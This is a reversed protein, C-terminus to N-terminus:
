SARVAIVEPGGGPRPVAPPRSSAALTPRPPWPTCPPCTTAGRRSRPRGAPGCRACCRSGGRATSSRWRGCLDVEDGPACLLGDVGDTITDPFNGVRTAVVPLGHEHALAVLQSATASRYPLVLADFGAFLGPIQEAPLYEPRVRVRDALGARSVLMSLDPGARYQEGVITM